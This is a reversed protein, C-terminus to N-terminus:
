KNYNKSKTVARYIQELLFLRCMEHTYTMRSLSLVLDARSKVAESLGSPGGIIFVINKGSLDLKKLEESFDRSCFEKGEESLAFVFNDRTKEILEQIKEGEQKVNSDKIDLIELKVLYSVRRIYECCLDLINKDKTKGVCILKLKMITLCLSM